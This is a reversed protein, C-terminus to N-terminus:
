DGVNMETKRTFYTGENDVVETEYNAITERRESCTRAYTNLFRTWLRLILSSCM